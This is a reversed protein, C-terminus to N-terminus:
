FFDHPGHERRLEQHDNLYEIFDKVNNVEDCDDPPFNKGVYNVNYHCAGCLLAVNDIAGYRSRIPGKNDVKWFFQVETRMRKEYVSKELQSKDPPPKVKRGCRICRGDYRELVDNKLRDTMYAFTEGLNLPMGRYQPSHFAYKFWQYWTFSYKTSEFLPGGMFKMGWRRADNVLISNFVKIEADTLSYLWDMKTYGSFRRRNQFVRGNLRKVKKGTKEYEKKGADHRVAKYAARVIKESWPAEEVAEDMTYGYNYLEKVKEYPNM